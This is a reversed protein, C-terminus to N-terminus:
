KRKNKSNTILRFGISLKKIKEDNLLFNQSKHYVSIDFIILRNKKNEVLIEEGNMLFITGGNKVDNLYILVKHTENSHIPDLHFHVPKETIASSVIDLVGIFKSDIECIKKGYKQWFESTLSHNKIMLDKLNNSEVYKYYENLDEEDLFNDTIFLDM